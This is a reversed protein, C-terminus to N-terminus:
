EYHKSVNYGYNKLIQGARDSLLFKAFRQANENDDRKIVAVGQAIPKYLSDPIEIWVGQDKMEKALVVSKATFGLEASGSLIFQNTQSVSEGFVLKSSVREYLGLKKLADVAAEGYPATRPNAIAIHQVNDSSLRELSLDSINQLTWLVLVGNAYVEPKSSALGNKYLENPYKMNASVFVDYPAGETIQATLQGSSGLIIECHIRTEMEFEQILEDMAFQVNAATAVILSKKSIPKCAIALLPILWMLNRM